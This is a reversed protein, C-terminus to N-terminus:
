EGSDTTSETGVMPCNSVRFHEVDVVQHITTGENTCSLVPPDGFYECRHCVGKSIIQFTDEGSGQAPDFLGEPDSEDMLVDAWVTDTDVPVVTEEVFQDSGRTDDGRKERISERLESLPGDQSEHEDVSPDRAERDSGETPSDTITESEHNEEGETRRAVEDSLDSLPVSGRPEEDANDTM